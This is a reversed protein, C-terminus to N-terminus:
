RDAKGAARAPRRRRALASSVRAVVPRPTAGLVGVLARYTRGPVSIARRRRLDALADAVVREADLWMSNPLHSMNMDARDHFETRTFGPCVATVAVGKPALEQALGESFVTEWAKAASYTGMAVFSAVSSVTLIGGHGRAAMARGAAHSLVLTARCMVDLMREEEAVDSDLFGTRLGFGANNVLLDVPGTPGDGAVRRAVREVDDRDALDAPLVETRVGHAAELATALKRLRAETRAVLVLDHGSAALQRAFEAGLGASAGTVLATTM